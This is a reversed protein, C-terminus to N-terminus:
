ACAYKVGNEAYKKEKMTLKWANEFGCEWVKENKMELLIENENKHDQDKKYKNM